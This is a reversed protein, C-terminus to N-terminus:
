VGLSSSPRLLRHFTKPLQFYAYTRLNRFLDVKQAAASNMPLCSIFKICIPDQLVIETDEQGFGDM